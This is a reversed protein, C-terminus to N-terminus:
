GDEGPERGESATDELVEQSEEEAADQALPDDHPARPNHVGLAACGRGWCNEIYSEVEAKVWEPAVEFRLAARSHMRSRDREGETNLVEGENLLGELVMTDCLALELRAITTLNTLRDEPIGELKQHGRFELNAAQVRQASWQEWGAPRAPAEQKGRPRSKPRPQPFVAESGTHPSEPAEQDWAEERACLGVNFARRLSMCEATKVAMEPGYQRNSGNKPYRGIYTFPRGMDKRYVAVRATFHTSTEGQDLVEIGDFQGSRHAVHLLGDRTVYPRNQILIMHKLIPDLGYRECTLLLAQANPDRADIGLARLVANHDIAIPGQGNERRAPVAATSM